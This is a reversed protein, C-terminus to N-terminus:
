SLNLVIRASEALSEVESLKPSMMGILGVGLVPLLLDGGHISFRLRCRSRGSEVFEEVEVGLIEDADVSAWVQPPSYNRWLSIGEPEILATVYLVPDIAGDVKLFAQLGGIRASQVVIAGSRQAGLIAARSRPKRAWLSALMNWVVVVFAITLAGLAVQEWGGSSGARFALALISALVLAAFAVSAFLNSKSM